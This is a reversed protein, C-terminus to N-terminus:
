GDRAKFVSNMVSAYEAGQEIVLDGHVEVGTVVQGPQTMRIGTPEKMGPVVVVVGAAPAMALWKLFGRRNM